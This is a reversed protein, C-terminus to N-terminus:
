RGQCQDPPDSTFGFFCHLSAFPLAVSTPWDSAVPKTDIPSTVTLLRTTVVNPAIATVNMITM